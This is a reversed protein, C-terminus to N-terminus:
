SDKRGGSTRKVHVRHFCAFGINLLFNGGNSVSRFLLRLLGMASYYRSSPTNRNYGYSHLDVGSNEEWKKEQWLKIFILQPLKVKTYTPPINPRSSGAMSGLLTPVGDTM